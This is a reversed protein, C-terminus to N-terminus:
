EAWLDDVFSYAHTDPSAVWRHSMSALLQKPPQSTVAKKKAVM